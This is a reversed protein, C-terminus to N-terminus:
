PLAERQLMYDYDPHTLVSVNGVHRFTFLLGIGATARLIRHYSADTLRYLCPPVRNRRLFTYSTGHWVAREIIAHHTTQCSTLVIRVIRTDTM